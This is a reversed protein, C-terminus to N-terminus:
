RGRNGGARRGRASHRTYSRERASEGIRERLTPDGCAYEDRLLASHLTRIRAPAHSVHSSVALTRFAVIRRAHPTIVM